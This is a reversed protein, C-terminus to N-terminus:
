AAGRWKSQAAAVDYSTLLIRLMWVPVQVTANMDVGTTEIRIATFGPAHKEAFAVLDGLAKRQRKEEASPESM